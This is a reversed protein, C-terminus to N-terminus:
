LVTVSIVDDDDGRNCDVARCLNRGNCEVRSKPSLSIIDAHGCHKQKLLVWHSVVVDEITLIGTSCHHEPGCPSTQHRAVETHVLSHLHARRHCTRLKGSSM